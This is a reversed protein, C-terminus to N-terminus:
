LLVQCLSLLMETALCFDASKGPHRLCDSTSPCVRVASYQVHVGLGHKPNITLMRNSRVM